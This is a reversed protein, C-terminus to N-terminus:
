KEEGESTAKPSVNRETEGTVSRVAVILNKISTRYDKLATKVAKMDERFQTLQGKPNDSTCTFGSANTQATKLAIQAATRKTQIDTVLTSYNAVTKGSPVVKSTYYTEVRTAIKDFVDLMNTAMKTLQDSRKKISDEHAQCAKLNTGALRAMVRQMKDQPAASVQSATFILSSFLLSAIVFSLKINRLKM